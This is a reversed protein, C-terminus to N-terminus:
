TFSLEYAEYSEYTILIHLYEAARQIHLCLQNHSVVGRPAQM